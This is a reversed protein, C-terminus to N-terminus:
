NVVVNLIKYSGNSYGVIVNLNAQHSMTTELARLQNKTSIDRIKAWLDPSLTIDLQPQKSSKIYFGGAWKPGPGKGDSGATPKFQKLAHPSMSSADMAIFRPKGGAEIKLWYIITITKGILIEGKPESIRGDFVFMTGAGIKREIVDTDAYVSSVCILSVIVTV